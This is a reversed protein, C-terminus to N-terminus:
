SSIHPTPLSSSVVPYCAELKLFHSSIYIGLKTPINQSFSCRHCKNNLSFLINNDIKIKIIAPSASIPPPYKTQSHSLSDLGIQYPTTPLRIRIKYPIIGVSWLKGDNPRTYAAYPPTNTIRATNHPQHTSLFVGSTYSQAPAAMHTM